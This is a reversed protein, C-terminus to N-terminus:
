IFTGPNRLQSFGEKGSPPSAFFAIHKGNPSWSPSDARGGKCEDSHLEEDLRWKNKGKGMELPIDEPGERTVWSLSACIRSSQSTIARTINPNWSIELPFLKDKLESLVEVEGTDPNAAVANTSSTSRINIPDICKRTFGIRGDNLKIPHLYITNTCDNVAPLDLLRSKIGHSDIIWPKLNLSVAVPYSRVTVLRESDVWALGSYEGKDLPIERAEMISVEPLNALTSCGLTLLSVTCLIMKASSNIELNNRQGPKIYTM